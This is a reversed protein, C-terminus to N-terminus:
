SNEKLKNIVYQEPSGARNMENMKKVKEPNPECVDMKSHGYMSLGGKGCKGCYYGQCLEGKENLHEMSM